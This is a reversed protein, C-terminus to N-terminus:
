KHKERLVSSPSFGYPLRRGDEQLMGDRSADHDIYSSMRSCAHGDVGFGSYFVPRRPVEDHSSAVDEAELPLPRHLLM